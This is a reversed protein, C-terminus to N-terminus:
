HTKFEVDKCCGFGAPPPPLNIQRM